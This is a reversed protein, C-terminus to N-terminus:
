ILKNRKLEVAIQLFTCLSKYLREHRQESLGKRDNMTCCMVKGGSRTVDNLQDQANTDSSDPKAAFDGCQVKSYQITRTHITSVNM